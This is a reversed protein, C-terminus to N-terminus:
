GLRLLCPKLQHAACSSLATAAAGVVSTLRVIRFIFFSMDNGCPLGWSKPLFLVSAFIKLAKVAWFIPLVLANVANNSSSTRKCVHIHVVPTM